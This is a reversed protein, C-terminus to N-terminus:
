TLIRWYQTFSEFKRHSKHSEKSTASSIGFTKARRNAGWMNDPQAGAEHQNVPKWDNINVAYARKHPRYSEQPSAFGHSNKTSFGHSIMASSLMRCIRANQIDTHGHTHTNIERHPFHVPFFWLFLFLTLKFGLYRYWSEEEFSNLEVTYWMSMSQIRASM